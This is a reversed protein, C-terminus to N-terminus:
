AKPVELKLPDDVAADAANIRAVERPDLKTKDKAAKNIKWVHLGLSVGIVAYMMFNRIYEAVNEANESTIPLLRGIGPSVIFM